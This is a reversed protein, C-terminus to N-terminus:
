RAKEKTRSSTHRAGGAFHTLPAREGIMSVSGFILGTHWRVRHASAHPILGVLSTVGVVFLAALVLTIM